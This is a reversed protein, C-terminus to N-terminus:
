YKAREVSGSYRTIGGIDNVHTYGETILFEVARKSRFGSVCYVYFPTDKDPYLELVRKIEGLPVNTAKPIHAADYEDPNRVDLLVAGPTSKFVDVGDNIGTKQFFNFFGM